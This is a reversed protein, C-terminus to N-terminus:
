VSSIILIAVFNCSFNNIQFRQFVETTATPNIGGGKGGGKLPLTLLPSLAGSCNTKTLKEYSEFLFPTSQLASRKIIILFSPPYLIQM